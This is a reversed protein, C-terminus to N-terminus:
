RRRRSIVGAIGLSVAWFPLAVIVIIWPRPGDILDKWGMARATWYALAAVSIWSIILIWKTRSSWPQEPSQRQPMARFGDDADPGSM